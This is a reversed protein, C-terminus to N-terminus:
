SRAIRARLERLRTARASRTTDSALVRDIAPVAETGYIDEIARAARDGVRRHAVMDVLNALMRPDHRVDPDTRAAAEYRALADSRWLRAAYVHGLLLHARADRPEAHTQRLLDAHTGDDIDQGAEVRAHAEWLLPPLNADAWPDRPDSPAAGQVAEGEATPETSPSVATEAAALPEDGGNSLGRVLFATAIGAVCFLVPVIPLALAALWLASLNRRAPASRAAVARAPARGGAVPIADLAELMRTADPFRRAPDRELARALFAELAPPADPRLSGVRPADTTLKSRIVESAKGEFPCEGTVMEFLVVATAYLDARRDVDKAGAQEPAMYAPTGAIQGARTLAAGARSERELFKALGFDLVKVHPEGQLSQIFVNGPKIDRHLLDRSHAYALARLMQRTFAVARPVDLRGERALTADLSEGELLEMVLYPSEAEFGFDILSVVHPHSLAALARAERVFRERAEAHAEFSAHLVKLAVPRRLEVHEARYVVALGGEGLPALIQFRGDVIQGIRPDPELEATAIM